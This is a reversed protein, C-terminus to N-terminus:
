AEGSTELMYQHSDPKESLLHLHHVFKAAIQRM